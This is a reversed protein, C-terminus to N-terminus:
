EGAEARAAELERQVVGRQNPIELRRELIPIAEDARGSLRLANGLNYLAYAYGLDRTGEPYSGVARELVPVADEYRGKQIMAFGQENLTAGAAPDGEGASAQGAADSPERGSEAGQDREGGARQGTAPSGGGPEDGGFVGLAIAVVALAMAVVGAVAALRGPRPVNVTVETGPADREPPEEAVPSVAPAPDLVGLGAELEAVLETASRPRADPDP